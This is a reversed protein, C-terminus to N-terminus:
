PSKGTPKKAASVSSGSSCYAPRFRSELLSCVLARHPPRMGVDPPMYSLRAPEMKTPADAALWNRDLLAAEGSPRYDLLVLREYPVAMPPYVKDPKILRRWGHQQIRFNNSMMGHDPYVHMSDVAAYSRTKGFGYFAGALTRDRYMFRLLFSFPADSRYIYALDTAQQKDPLDVLVFSHPKPNPAVAAIAGLVSEINRYEAVPYERKELAAVTAVGGVLAAVVLLPARSRIYRSLVTCLLFLFAGYTFLGMGYLQRRDDFREFTISYPLYSLLALGLFGCVVVAVRPWPMPTSGSGENKLLRWAAAAVFFAILLAPILYEAKFDWALDFFAFLNQEIASGYGALALALNPNAIRYDWGMHRNASIVDFLGILLILPSIKALYAFGPGGGEMRRLIWAGVPIALMLLFYGPYTFGAMLQLLFMASLTLWGGKELYVLACLAAALSLVLGFKAGTSNLWFYGSDAPHFAALLGCLVAFLRNGPLMREVIEYMLISRLVTLVLVVAQWGQFGHPTIHLGIWTPIDRLLRTHVADLIHRSGSNTMFLMLDDSMFPGISFGDPLWAALALAVFLVYPHFLLSTGRTEVLQTWGAAIGELPRYIPM